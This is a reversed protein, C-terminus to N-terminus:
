DYSVECSYSSGDEFSMELKLDPYKTQTFAIGELWNFFLKNNNQSCTYVSDKLHVLLENTYREFDIKYVEKDLPNLTPLANLNYEKIAIMKPVLISTKNCNFGVANTKIKALFKTRLDLKDSYAIGKNTSVVYYDYQGYETLLDKFNFNVINEYRDLRDNGSFFYPDGQWM